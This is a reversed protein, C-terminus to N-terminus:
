PQDKRAIPATIIPSQLYRWLTPRWGTRSSLKVYGHSQPLALYLFAGGERSTSRLKGWWTRTVEGSPAEYQLLFYAVIGHENVGELIAGNTPAEAIDRWPNADSM